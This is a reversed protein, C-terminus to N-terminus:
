SHIFLYKFIDAFLHSTIIINFIWCDISLCLFLRIVKFFIMMKVTMKKIKDMTPQLTWLNGVIHDFKKIGFDFKKRGEAAKVDDFNPLFKGKFHQTNLLRIIVDGYM